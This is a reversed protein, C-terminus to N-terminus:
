FQLYYLNLASFFSLEELKGCYLYELFLQFSDPDCDPIIIVGTQRELTDYKFNAALVSSRAMLVSRHAKYEKDQIKLTVDCSEKDFLEKFNKSM